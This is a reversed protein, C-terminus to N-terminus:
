RGTFEVTFIYRAAVPRCDRIEARYTSLRAVRIAEDDFVSNTSQAIQTWIVRSHDDLTVIVHVIGSARTPIAATPYGPEEAQLMRAPSNRETCSPNFPPEAVRVCRENDTTATRSAVVRQLVDGDLAYTLTSDADRSGLAFRLPGAGSSTGAGDPSEVSATGDGKQVIREFAVAPVDDGQVSYTTESRGYLERIGGPTKAPFLYYYREAPHQGAVTCHWRGAMAALVDPASQAGSPPVASLAFLVIVLVRGVWRM